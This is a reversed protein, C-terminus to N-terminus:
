RSLQGRVAGKPFAANHVNVYYGTPDQMIAKIVAADASKCGKASGTKPAELPVKVPGEQGKAGEHIHAATAEQINAVSLDYCVEGKDPNLTVQVTGSGKPDGPGPVETDGTLTATVKGMEQAAAMPVGILLALAMVVTSLVLTRMAVEEETCSSQSVKIVCSTTLSIWCGCEIVGSMMSRLRCILGVM